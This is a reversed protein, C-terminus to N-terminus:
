TIFLPIKKKVKERVIVFAFILGGILYFILLFPWITILLDDDAEFFGLLKRDIFVFLFGVLLYGIYVGTLTGMVIAVEAPDHCIAVGVLFTLGFLVIVVIGGITKKIM